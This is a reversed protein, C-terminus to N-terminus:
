SSSEELRGLCCCLGSRWSLRTQRPAVILVHANAFFFFLPRGM